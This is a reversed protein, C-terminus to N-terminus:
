RKVPTLKTWLPPKQWTLFAKVNKLDDEPDWVDVPSATDAREMDFNWLLKALILRLELHSLHRGICGRPGLSFPQSADKRDSDYIPDIWREPLYEEPRVFNNPSHTTAWSHVSVVTGAALPEGAVVDGGEPVSRTFGTPVPPFIRFGESVCANMYPLEQLAAFCIEDETAFHSRVEETLKRYAHPSRMLWM